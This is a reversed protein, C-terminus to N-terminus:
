KRDLLIDLACPQMTLNLLDQAIARQAQPRRRTVSVRVASSAASSSEAGSGKANARNTVSSKMHLEDSIDALSTMGAVTAEALKDLLSQVLQEFFIDPQLLPCQISAAGRVTIGVAEEESVELESTARSGRIASYNQLSSLNSDRPSPPASCSTEALPYAESRPAFSAATTDAEDDSVSDGSVGIKVGTSSVLPSGVVGGHGDLSQQPPPHSSSLGASSPPATLVNSGRRRSGQHRLLGCVVVPQPGLSGELNMMIDAAQILTMKRSPDYCLGIVHCHRCIFRRLEEHRAAGSVDFIHLVAETMLGNALRVTTTRRQFGVTSHVVMKSPAEGIFTQVCATKGISSPGIIAIRIPSSFLIRAGLSFSSLGQCRAMEQRRAFDLFQTYNYRAHLSIVRKAAESESLLTADEIVPASSFFANTSSLAANNPATSSSTYWGSKQKSAVAAEAASSKLSSLQPLEREQMWRIMNYQYWIINDRSLFYFDASVLSANLLDRLTLFSLINVLLARQLMKLEGRSRRRHEGTAEQRTSIVLQAEYYCSACVRCSM